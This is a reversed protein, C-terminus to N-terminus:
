QSRNALPHGSTGATNTPDASRRLDALVCDFFQLFALSDFFRGHTGRVSLLIDQGDRMKLVLANSEKGASLKVQDIEKFPVVVITGGLASWIIATEFIWLADVETETNRYLGILNGVNEYGAPAAASIEAAPQYNLLESLIRKARIEVNM